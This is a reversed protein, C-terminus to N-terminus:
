RRALLREYLAQYALSMRETEFFEHFRRKAVEGMVRALDPVANLQQMASALAPVDAPPVVLGTQEHLNVYSTGTGIECSIMPKGARAAELLSVGFAESRLHSPFAFALSLELLAEKDEDNVRGVAVVEAPLPSTLEDASAGAMVVRLGSLRAADLLFNLGKYYRPAGVFLFYGSGVREQWYRMREASPVIRDSPLGIPIMTTKGLHRQLVASSAIYNPSTAVIADMRSLFHHMLPRYLVLLRAQKVIDSHYTVLSPKGTPVLAEVVDMMPWPFHFHILDSQKALEAFARFMSISLGTSAVYLDLKAQYGRHNGIVDFGGSPTRSLSLVTSEVGMGFTGESISHVVREIGTFSDPLYTKFVHLVKM